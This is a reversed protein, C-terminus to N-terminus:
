SLLEETFHLGATPAAVSGPHRAYVTQYRQRDDEVMEGGRIYHPLPVRGVRDLLDFTGENSEAVAIWLGGPRKEILRLQVDDAGVRNVLTLREGPSIRGRAKSLLQWQGSEDASIFLGEWRGGTLSRHGILRAPVVRTDNLVLCDGARLIEPLDRVHEHRLSGAAREVLLLRADARHPLPQQAILERPLTYDYRSLESM